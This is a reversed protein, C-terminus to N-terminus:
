QVRQMGVMETNLALHHMVSCTSCLFPCAQQTLHASECNLNVLGAHLRLLYSDGVKPMTFCCGVLAVLAVIAM